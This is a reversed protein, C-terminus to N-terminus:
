VPKQQSFLSLQPKTSKFAGHIGMRAWARTWAYATSSLNISFHTRSLLCVICDPSSDVIQFTTDCSEYGERWASFAEQTDGFPPSALICVTATVTATVAWRCWCLQLQHFSFLFALIWPVDFDKGTPANLGCSGLQCGREVLGGSKQPLCLIRWLVCYADSTALNKSKL